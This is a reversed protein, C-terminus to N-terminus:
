TMSCMPPRGIKMPVMWSMVSLLTASSASLWARLSSAWTARTAVRLAMVAEIAWSTLWGREPIRVLAFVQTRISAASGGFTAMAASVARRVIRSALRAASTIWRRRAINEVLAGVISIASRFSTARSTIARDRPSNCRAPASRRVSKAFSSGCIPTSRTWNCCTTRFRNSFAASAIDPTSSRGLVSSTRVPRCSSPVTLSSTRSEPVPISGAM